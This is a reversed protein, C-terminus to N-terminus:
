NYRLRWIWHYIRFVPEWLCESPFYCILRIDRKLRQINKKIASNAKQNEIDHHGFNEGKMIETMLVKGRKEDIPAILYEEELGLKEHLVWMMAGAIKALGLYQLTEYVGKNEGREDSKLLYYYDIIHRLGIGSQLVHGYIHALLFVVNFDWTPVAIDVETEPLRVYNSFQEDRKSVIWKQMRINHIMNNMFRPRHHVEVEIGNYKGGDIHNYHLFGIPYNQRLFRLVRKERQKEPLSKDLPTIWLDIDGPSRSFYNPYRFNNGQGKLLCCCYGEKDFESFLDIVTQNIKQNQLRIHECVAIWEMLLTFPPKTEKDNLRKLAELTVGPIAQKISLKFLIDWEKETPKCCLTHKSGLAVQVLEWFSNNEKQEVM